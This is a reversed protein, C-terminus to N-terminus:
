SGSTLLPAELPDWGWTGTGREGHDSRFLCAQAGCGKQITAESWPPCRFARHWWPHPDNTIPSCSGSHQWLSVQVDLCWEALGQESENIHQGKPGRSCCSAIDCLGEVGPSSLFLTEGITDAGSTPTAFGRHEPSFTKRLWTHPAPHPMVSFPTQARRFPQPGTGQM